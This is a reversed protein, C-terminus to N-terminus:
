TGCGGVEREGVSFPVDITRQKGESGVVVIVRGDGKPATPAVTWTDSWLGRFDAKGHSNGGHGEGWPKAAGSKEGHYVALYAIDAKPKTEVRLTLQGGIPVCNPTVTAKIPLEAETAQHAPDIPPRYPTASASPAAPKASASSPVSKDAGQTAPPQATPTSGPAKGPANTPTASPAGSGSSSPPASPAAKPTSSGCATAGVALATAAVLGPLRRM